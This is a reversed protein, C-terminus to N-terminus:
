SDVGLVVALGGVVGAECDSCVEDLWVEDSPWPEFVARITPGTRPTATAMRRATRRM